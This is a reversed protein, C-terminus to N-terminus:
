ESISRRRSSSHWGNSSWGSIFSYAAGGGSQPFCIMTLQEDYGRAHGAETMRPIFALFHQNKAQASLSMGAFSPTPLLGARTRKNM